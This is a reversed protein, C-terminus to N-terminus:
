YREAMGKDILQQNLYVGDTLISVGEIGEAPYWVDAVYRGYKDTRSTAMMIVSSVQLKDMVFGKARM